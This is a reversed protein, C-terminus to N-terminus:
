NCNTCNGDVCNCDLMSSSNVNKIGEAIPAVENTGKYLSIIDKLM